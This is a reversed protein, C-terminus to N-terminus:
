RRQKRRRRRKYGKLAKGRLDFAAIVFIADDDLRHRYVIKLYRGSSTQGLAVRTGGKGSRDEPWNELVDEIDQESVNHDYIHPEGTVPNLHYRINM